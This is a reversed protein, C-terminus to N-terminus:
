WTTTTTTTTTEMTRLDATDDGFVDTMCENRTQDKYLDTPIREVILFLSLKFISTLFSFGNESPSAHSTGIGNM